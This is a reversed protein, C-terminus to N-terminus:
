PTSLQPDSLIKGNAPTEDDRSEGAEARADALAEGILGMMGHATRAGRTDAIGAVTRLEPMDAAALMDCVHAEAREVVERASSAGEGPLVVVFEAGAWRGCWDDARMAQTLAEAAVKLAIDGAPTGHEDNMARLGLIEIVAAVGGDATSLLTRMREESARRNPLGTLVDTAAQLEARAFARLTGVRTASESALMSVDAVTEDSPADGAPGTVHLVGMPEGMFTMPACVASCPEDRRALHPCSRIAESDDFRQTTGRRVAPCSWPSVVTCGPSGNEPHVVAARLHAQSSDALLMEAKQDPTAIALSREIVAYAAPEDVADDLGEVVQRSLTRRRSESAALENWDRLKAMSRHISRTLPLIQTAVVFLFIISATVAVVQMATFVRDLHDLTATTQNRSEIELAVSLDGFRGSLRSVNEELLARNAAPADVYEALSRTLEALESSTASTGDPDIVEMDLALAELAAIVDARSDDSSIMGTGLLVSVDRAHVAASSWEDVHGLGAEAQGALTRVTIVLAVVLGFMVGLCLLVAGKLRSHREIGSWWSSLASPARTM